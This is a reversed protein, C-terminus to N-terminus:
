QVYAGFCVFCVILGFLLQSVSGSPTFFVPLCAVALKRACEFIEFWWVRMEYRCFHSEFWAMHPGIQAHSSSNVLPLPEPPEACPAM